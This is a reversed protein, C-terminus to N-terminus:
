MKCFRRYAAIKWTGNERVVVFTRESTQLGMSSQNWSLTVDALAVDAHVARMSKIQYSVATKETWVRPEDAISKVARDRDPSGRAFLSSVAAADHKHHAQEFNSILKRIAAEDSPNLAQAAANLAFLLLCPANRIPMLGKKMSIGGVRPDKCPMLGGTRGFPRYYPADRGMVDRISAMQNARLCCLCPTVM